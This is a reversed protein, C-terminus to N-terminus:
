LSIWDKIYVDNTGEAELNVQAKCRYMDGAELAQVMDTYFPIDTPSIDIEVPHNLDWSPIILAVRTYNQHRAVIGEVRVLAHWPKRKDIYIGNFEDVITTFSKVLNEGNLTQDDLICPILHRHRRVSVAADANRSCLVAPIRNKYLNSVIVDGNVPSYRFRTLLFDCIFGDARSASEVLEQVNTISDVDKTAIDLDSIALDYSSRIEPDDDVLYVSSIDRDGVNLIQM